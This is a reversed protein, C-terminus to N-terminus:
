VRTEGVQKAVHVKLWLKGLLETTKFAFSGLVVPM